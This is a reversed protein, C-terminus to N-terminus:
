LWSHRRYWEVTQRFGAVLEIRPRWGVAALAPNARCVWDPHYLEAVKGRSVMPARRSLRAIGENIQAIGTLLGRPVGFPRVPRGFVAAGAAAVDPWGYGGRKGDDVEFIAGSPLAATLLVQLAACLDDVHILSVRGGAPRPTPLWGHRMLRFLDLTERDGPGYVAPPRLISWHLTAAADALQREGAAKSAAYPSLAPERAALSSMHVMRPRSAQSAAIVALRQVAAANIRDFEGHDRAKILGAANVVADAGDVLATLAATDDLDGHIWTIGDAADARRERGVDARRTLARIHWGDAALRDIAHKGIFGTAGTLALLGSM